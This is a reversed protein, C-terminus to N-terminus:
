NDAVLSLEVLKKLTQVLEHWLGNLNAFKTLVTQGVLRSSLNDADLAGRKQGTELFGLFLEGCFERVAELRIKYTGAGAAM